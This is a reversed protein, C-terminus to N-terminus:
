VAVTVSVLRARRRRQPRHGGLPEPVLLPLVRTPTEDLRSLPHDGIAAVGVGRGGVDGLRRPDGLAREEAVERRLTLQDDGVPAPAGLREAVRQAGGGGGVLGDLHDAGGQVSEGGVQGGCVRSGTDVGRRDPGVTGEDHQQEVDHDLELLVDGRHHRLSQPAALVVELHADGGVRRDADQAGGDPRGERGITAVDEVLRDVDPHRPDDRQEGRGDRARVLPSSRAAGVPPTAWPGRPGPSGTSPSGSVVTMALEDTTIASM